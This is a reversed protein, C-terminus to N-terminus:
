GPMELRRYEDQQARLRDALEQGGERRGDRYVITIRDAQPENGGHRSPHVIVRDVVSRIANRRWGFDGLREVEAVLVAFQGTPRAIEARRRELDQREADIVDLAVRLTEADILDRGYDARKNAERADLALLQENLGDLAESGTSATSAVQFADSTYVAEVVLEDVTAQITAHRGEVGPRTAVNCRYHPIRRRTPRIGSMKAGCACEIIGLLAFTTRNSGNRNNRRRPDALIARVRQAVDEPVGFQEGRGLVNKVSQLAVPQGKRGTLGADQWMRVASRISAGGAVSLISQRIAKYEDPRPTLGDPEFGWPRPGGIRARGAARERERWAKGRRSKTRSEAEALVAHIDYPLPDGETTDVGQDYAAVHCFQRFAAAKALNRYLRDVHRVVVVDVKGAQIDALLAPFVKRREDHYGSRGPEVYTGVLEWGREEVYRRGREVQQDLNAQQVIAGTDPDEDVESLRAYV